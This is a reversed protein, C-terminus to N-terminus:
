SRRAFAATQLARQRVVRALQRSRLYWGARNQLYARWLRGSRFYHMEIRPADVVASARDARGLKTGASVDAHRAVERLVAPNVHGYPPAFTTPRRGLESEIRRQSSEIEHTLESPSLLTLDAHTVSHGGFEVGRAGLDRVVDWSM